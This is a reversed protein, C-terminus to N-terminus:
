TTVKNTSVALEKGAPKSKTEVTLHATNARNATGEAVVTDESEAILKLGKGSGFITWIHSTVTTDPPPDVHWLPNFKSGWFFHSWTKCEVIQIAKLEAEMASKQENSLPVLPDLVVIRAGGNSKILLKCPYPDAIYAPKVQEYPVMAFILGAEHVVHNKFQNLPDDLVKIQCLKFPTREAATVKNQVGVTASSRLTPNKCANGFGWVFQSKSSMDIEPPHAVEVPDAITGSLVLGAATGSVRTLQLQVPLSSGFKVEVEQVKELDADTDEVDEFDTVALKPTFTDAFVATGLFLGTTATLAGLAVVGVYEEPALKNDGAM